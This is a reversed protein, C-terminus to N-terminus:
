ANTYIFVLIIPKLINYCFLKEIIITYLKCNNILMAYKMLIQKNNKIRWGNKGIFIEQRHKPM